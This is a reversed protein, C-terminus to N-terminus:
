SSKNKVLPMGDKQWAMIGGRMNHVQQFGEKRLISAASASRMGSRCVVIVPKEKYKEIKKIQNKLDGLPIHIANIISGDAMEKDERVDVVVAKSHNMM